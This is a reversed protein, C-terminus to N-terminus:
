VNGRLAKAPSVGFERRFATGLHSQSCFGADLAAQALPTGDLIMDLATRVRLKQLYRFITMGTVQRFVRCLHFVSLNVAQGIDELKHSNVIDKALLAKVHEAAAFHAAQTRPRRNAPKGPTGHHSIDSLLSAVMEVVYLADADQGNRLVYHFLKRQQMLLDAPLQRHHARFPSDPRDLTAPDYHGLADGIMGQSVLMLQSCEGDDSVVFRQYEQHNNLMVVHNADAVFARAGAPHLRFSSRPFVVNHGDDIHNLRLWREHGPPCRFQCLTVLPHEFIPFQVQNNLM